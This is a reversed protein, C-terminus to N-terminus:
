RKILTAGEEKTLPRTISIGYEGTEVVRPTGDPKAEGVLQVIPYKPNEPNVDVVQGIKNNSLLVYLGIPYLSLSFLLARIVTEDYQKGQNKMIDIIGSYADRAEKYPREATVAEYSCAVAIIKAYLSIKDKALKRPYGGGNEREHHELVGLCINLPFSFERLINYSIVPHTFIANKEVPTLEKKGMYVQPPLRVMGIEHLICAVGLEILKHIPFKLQLGIVIAFVTSRMSHVVLYNKDRTEQSPQIRLVLRRNERIFDCLENVKDSIIQQQLDKRTVFRTYVDAIFAQFEYYTKEVDTLSQATTEPAETGETTKAAKDKEEFDDFADPTVSITTRELDDNTSRGESFVKLFEWDRLARRFEQTIPMGPTLLIFKKDLFLDETFFFGDQLETVNFTNM